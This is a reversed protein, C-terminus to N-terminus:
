HELHEIEEDIKKVHENHFDYNNEKIAEKKRELIEDLKKELEIIEEIDYVLVVKRVIM